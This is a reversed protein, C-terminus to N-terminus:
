AIWASVLLFAAGYATLFLKLDPSLRIAPVQPVPMEFARGRGFHAPASLRILPRM